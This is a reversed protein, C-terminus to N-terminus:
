PAYAHTSAALGIEKRMYIAGEISNDRTYPIFGFEEYLKIASAMERRTQLVVTKYGATRARSILFKLLDRGVGQGRVSPGLYFKKLECIDSNVQLLAGSGVIKYEPNRVVYFEGTHEGYYTPFNDLDEFMSRNDATTKSELKMEDRVSIVFDRIAAVDGPSALSLDLETWKRAWGSTERPYQVNSLGEAFASLDFIAECPTAANVLTSFALCSVLTFVTKVASLRM